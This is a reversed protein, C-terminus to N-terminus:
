QEKKFLDLYEEYGERELDKKPIFKLAASNICYRKGTPKPGDDFVHGLHNNGIKSKLEIRKGLFSFDDTYKVIHPDITKTFSPWGTGSKFKDTSSFLPEGSLVDVYIGEQKNDWYQNSFARETGEEQTVKYVLPHLSKELIENDPKVYDKYNFGNYLISEKIKQIDIGKWQKEIYQDRGSGNRYYKYRLPNRLYYDQHYDEAKYFEKFPLVDVKIKDDYFGSNDMISIENLITKREEETKYFLVPRYHKGRDIFSGNNDTPDIIQWYKDLLDVVTLKTSDYYIEVVEIHGTTGSSVQKYTPNAVNGGAYGSIVTAVGDLKEFDAEVCWFCGGGLVFTKINENSLDVKKAQVPKNLVIFLSIFVFIILVFVILFLKNM